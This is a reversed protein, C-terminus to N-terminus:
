DGCYCIPPEAAYTSQTWKLRDHDAATLGKSGIAVPLFRGIRNFFYIEAAALLDPTGAASTAALWKM